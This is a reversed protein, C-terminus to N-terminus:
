LGKAQDLARLRFFLKSMAEESPIELKTGTTLEEVSLMNNYAMILWWYETTRFFRFSILDPRFEENQIVYQGRSRLKPLEQLFFSTLPDFRGASAGTQDDSYDMFKALDFREDSEIGLNIYFQETM